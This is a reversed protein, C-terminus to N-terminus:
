IENLFLTHWANFDKDWIKNYGNNSKIKIKYREKKKWVNVWENM